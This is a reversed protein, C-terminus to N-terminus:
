HSQGAELTSLFRRLREEEESGITLFELVLLWRVSMRVEARNVVLPADQDPLSIRLTLSKGRQVTQDSGVACGEMSLNGVIGEGTLNHGLFAIPLHVKFRPAQRKDM